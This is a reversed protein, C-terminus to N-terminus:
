LRGLLSFPGFNLHAILLWSFTMTTKHAWLKHLVSSAPRGNSQSSNLNLDFGILTRDFSISRSSSNQARNECTMAIPRWCKAELPGIARASLKSKGDFDQKVYGWFVMEFHAWITGKEKWQRRESASYHNSLSRSSLLTENSESSIRKTATIHQRKRRCM